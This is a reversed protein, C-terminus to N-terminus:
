NWFHPPTKLQQIDTPTLSLFNCVEADTMADVEQTIREVEEPRMDRAILAVMRLVMQLEMEGPAVSALLLAFKLGEENTELKM